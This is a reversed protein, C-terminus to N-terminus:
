FVPLSEIFDDLSTSVKLKRYEFIAVHLAPFAVPKEGKEDQYIDMVSAFNQKIQIWFYNFLFAEIQILREIETSQNEYLITIEERIKEYKGRFEKFTMSTDSAGSIWYIKYDDDLKKYFNLVFDITNRFYMVSSWISKVLILDGREKANHYAIVNPKTDHEKLGKKNDDNIDKRLKKLAKNHAKLDEKNKKFHLMARERTMFTKKSSLCAYLDITKTEDFDDKVDWWVRLPEGEEAEKLWTRSISQQFQRFHKSYM